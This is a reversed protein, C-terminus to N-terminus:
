PRARLVLLDGDIDTIISDNADVLPAIATAMLSMGRM